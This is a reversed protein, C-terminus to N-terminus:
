PYKQNIQTREKWYEQVRELCNFVRVTAVNQRGPDEAGAFEVNKYVDMKIVGEPGDQHADSGANRNSQDHKGCRFHIADISSEAKQKDM